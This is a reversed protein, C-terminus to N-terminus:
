LIYIYTRKQIDCYSSTSLSPYYPSWVENSLCKDNSIISYMECNYSVYNLKCCFHLFLVLETIVPIHTIDLTNM